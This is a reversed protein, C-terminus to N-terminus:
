PKMKARLIRVIEPYPKMSAHDLATKGNKDKANANAGKALLARVVAEHGFKAANMLPTLGATDKAELHAGNALLEQTITLHGGSAANLLPSTIGAWYNDNVEAGKSLLLKVLPVRGSLSASQLATYGTEEDRANVDVGEALLERVTALDGENAAVFFSSESFEKKERIAEALEQEAKTLKQATTEKKFKGAVSFKGGSMKNQLLSRRIEVLAKSKDSASTDLISVQLDNELFVYSIVFYKKVGSKDPVILQIFSSNGLKGPYGTFSDGNHDSFQYETESYKSIKFYNNKNEDTVNAWTGLLRADLPLGQKETLPAEFECAAAIVAMLVLLLGIARNM